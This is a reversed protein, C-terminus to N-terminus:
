NLNEQSHVKIEDLKRLNFRMNDRHKFMIGSEKLLLQYLYASLHIAMCASPHFEDEGDDVLYWIGPQLCSFVYGLIDIAEGSNM